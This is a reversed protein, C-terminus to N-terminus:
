FDPLILEANKMEPKYFTLIVEGQFFLRFSHIDTYVPTPRGAWSVMSMGSANFCLLYTGEGGITSNWVQRNRFNEQAIEAPPLKSLIAEVVAYDNISVLPSADMVENFVQAIGWGYLNSTLEVSKLEGCFNYATAAATAQVSFLLAITVLLAKLMRIQNRM